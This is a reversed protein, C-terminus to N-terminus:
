LSWFISATEPDSRLLSCLLGAALCRGPAPLPHQAKSEAVRGSVRLIAEAGKEDRMWMKLRRM